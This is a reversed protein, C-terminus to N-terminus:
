TGNRGKALAIIEKYPLHKYDRPRLGQSKLIKKAEKLTLDQDAM